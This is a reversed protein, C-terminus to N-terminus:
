SSISSSSHQVQKWIYLLFLYSQWRGILMISAVGLEALYLAMACTSPISHCGINAPPFGLVDKGMTVATERLTSVVVISSILVTKGSNDHFSNILTKASAGPMCVIFMIVSVASRVIYFDPCSSLSRWVEGGTWSFGVRPSM